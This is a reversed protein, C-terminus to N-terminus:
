AFGRAGLRVILGEAEDGIAVGSVLGAHVEEVGLAGRGLGWMGQPLDDAELIEVRDGGFETGELLEDFAEVAGVLVVDAGGAAEGGLVASDGEGGEEDSVVVIEARVQRQAVANGNGERLQGGDGGQLSPPVFDELESQGSSGLRLYVKRHGPRLIPCRLSAVQAGVRPGLNTPLSNVESGWDLGIKAGFRYIWVQGGWGNLHGFRRRRGKM